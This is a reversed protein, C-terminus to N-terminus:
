LQSYSVQDEVPQLPKVDPADAVVRDRPLLLM